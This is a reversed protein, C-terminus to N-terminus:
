FFLPPINLPPQCSGTFPELVYGAAGLLEWRSASLEEGHYTGIVKTAAAAGRRSKLFYNNPINKALPIENAASRLRAQTM